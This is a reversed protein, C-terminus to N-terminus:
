ETMIGLILNGDTVKKLGQAPFSSPSGLSAQM